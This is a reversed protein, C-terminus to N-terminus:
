GGNRKNIMSAVTLLITFPCEPKGRSDCGQCGEPGVHRCPYDDLADVRGDGPLM